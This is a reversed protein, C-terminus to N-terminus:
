ESKVYDSLDVQHKQEFGQLKEIRAMDEAIRDALKFIHPKGALRNRLDELMSEWKGEYLEVKLITLMREEANLQEVFRRVTEDVAVKNQPDLESMGLSVELGCGVAEGVGGDVLFAM